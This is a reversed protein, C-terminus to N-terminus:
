FIFPLPSLINQLTGMYSTDNAEMHLTPDTVNLCVIGGCKIQIEM